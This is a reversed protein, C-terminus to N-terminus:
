SNRYDLGLSDALRKFTYICNDRCAASIQYDVDYLGTVTLFAPQSPLLFQLPPCFSSANSPSLSDHNQLPEASRSSYQSPKQTSFM